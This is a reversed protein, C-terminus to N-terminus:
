GFTCQYEVVGEAVEIDFYGNEPVNFSQGAGYAGWEGEGVKVRCSGAIIEMLEPAQVNFRFSGPFIVGLTAKGGDAMTFGHSVVKGDFYLNAKRTLTVNAIQESM